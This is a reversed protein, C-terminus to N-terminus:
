NIFNINCFMNSNLVNIQFLYSKTHSVYLFNSRM